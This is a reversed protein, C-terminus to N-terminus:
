GDISLGYFAEFAGDFEIDIIHDADLEHETYTLMGGREDIQIIPMHLKSVVDAVAVDAYCARFLEDNVCFQAIAQVKEVYLQVLTEAFSVAEESMIPEIIKLQLGNITAEYQKYTENYSFNTKDM